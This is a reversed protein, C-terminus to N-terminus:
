PAAQGDAALQRAAPLLAEVTPVVTDRSGDVPSTALPWLAWVMVPVPVSRPAAQEDASRHMTTPWPLALSPTATCSGTGFAMAPELTTYPTAQGDPVRQSTTPCFAERSPTAAGSFGSVPANGFPPLRRFIEPVKESDATAQGDAV